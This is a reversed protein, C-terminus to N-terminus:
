DYILRAVLFLRKKSSTSQSTVLVLVDGGTLLEPSPTQNLINTVIYRYDRGQYKINVRDGVVMHGLLTFVQGFKNGNWWYDNSHGVLTLTDGKGPRVGYNLEVVGQTMATARDEEKIDWIIPTIVGLKGIVLTDADALTTPISPVAIDQNQYDTIYWWRFNQFLAPGNIVVLALTIAALTLFAKNVPRKPLIYTDAQNRLSNQPQHQFNATNASPHPSLENETPDPWWSDASKQGLFSLKGKAKRPPPNFLKELDREDFLM